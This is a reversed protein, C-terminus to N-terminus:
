FGEDPMLQSSPVGGQCWTSFVVSFVSGKEADLSLCYIMECAPCVLSHTERETELVQLCDESCAPCTLNLDLSLMWADKPEETDDDLKTAEAYSSVLMGESDLKFRTLAQNEIAREDFFHKRGEQIKRQFTEFTM